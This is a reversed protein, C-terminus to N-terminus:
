KLLRSRRRDAYVKGGTQCTPCYYTERDEYYIVAIPAGCRPCPEKGHRHVVLFELPEKMPLTGALGARHVDVARRLTGVIAQHLREIEAGGLATTMVQPSLRAEWLIEDSYANGIGVIYRQVTLFHKLATREKQLMGALLDPTFEESLPEVGLGDLPGGSGGEDGARFLWVSAAKKPGLEILRLETGDQFVVVFAVDKGTRGSRGPAIQLRGNRRLHMVMVLDQTLDFLLLKGRRRIGRIERGVLSTIPPEFTKLVSAGRVLVDQITRGRVEPWLNEALVTIFPLEPM